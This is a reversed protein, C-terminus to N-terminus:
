VEVNIGLMDSASTQLDMEANVYIETTRQDSHGLALQIQKLDAQGTYALRAFTRRLDHPAVNALNQGKGFRQVIHFIATDSLAEGEVTLKQNQESWFARRVIPGSEIKARETWADILAKIWDAIPVNRTRGHKGKIGVIVWRGDRKEFHRIELGVVESRRLGAGVMLGLIARDRLGIPTSTDPADLLGEAQSSTLWHGLKRGKVKRNKISCIAEAAEADLHGQRAMERLFFRIGSLHQNATQPTMKQKVMAANYELLTQYSLARGQLWKELCTLSHLYSRRTHESEVAQLAAHIQDYNLIM